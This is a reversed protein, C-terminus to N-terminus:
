HLTFSLGTSVQFSNKNYGVQPDNLFTDVINVSFGLKKYIPMHVGGNASASFASANNWAIDALAKEDFTIKGWKQTLAESLTSGILNRNLESVDATANFKQKEYHLDATLDFERRETKIVTIGVGAGYIQQLILGQAFNHDYSLMQLYYGRRSYYEDREAGVHYVNTKTTPVDPQTTQGISWTFDVTTRLKPDLWPVTPINRELHTNMMFLYSNQTARITTSGTDIHGDWGDHWHIKRHIEKQYTADDLIYAIKSTPIQQATTVETALSPTESKAVDPGKAKEEQSTPTVVVDKEGIKIAGQPILASNRSNKVGKPVVAFERNSKLEKVNAWEVTVEGALETKFKIETGTSNMLQGTLTDGNKLILTEKIEPEKPKTVKADAKGTTKAATQPLAPHTIFAFFILTSIIPAQRFFAAAPGERRQTILPMATIGRSSRIVPLNYRRFVPRTLLQNFGDCFPFPNRRRHRRL